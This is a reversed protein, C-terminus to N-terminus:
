PVAVWAVPTLDFLNLTRALPLSVWSGEGLVLDGQSALGTYWVWSGAANEVPGIIQTYGATSGVTAISVCTIIEDQSTMGGGIFSWGASLDRSPISFLTSYCYPISSAATMKVYFGEGPAIAYTSTTALGVFTQTSSDFRYALTYPLHTLDYLEAWTNYQGDLGIPVSWTNWGVTDLIVSNAYAPTSTSYIEAVTDNATASPLYLWPAYTVDDSVTDGRYGAVGPNTTANYPGAATGWYNRAGDLTNATDENLIGYTVNGDISNYNVVVGNAANGSAGWIKIGLNNMQVTNQTVSINTLTQTSRGIRIGERFGKGTGSGKITNGTVTVADQDQVGVGGGADNINIGTWGKGEGVGWDVGPVWDTIITNGSITADSREVTIGRWVEGTFANDAISIIGSGVDTDTNIYIGEYGLTGTGRGTFTNDHISLGDVDITAIGSAGQQDTGMTEDWTQIVQSVDANASANTGQFANDYIEVDPTGIVMGGTSKGSEPDPGQITFGHIKAGSAKIMIDFNEYGAGIDVGKITAGSAGALELDDTGVPILLDETYTGAVVSITDAATASDIADQITNFVTTQTTNIVRPELDYTVGDITITDVYSLATVTDDTGNKDLQLCVSEVEEGAYEGLFWSFDQNGDGFTGHWVEDGGITDTAWADISTIVAVDHQVIGGTSFQISLYPAQYVPVSDSWGDKTAIGGQNVIDSGASDVYYTYSMDALDALTIGAPLFVQVVAHDTTAATLTLEVSYVGADKQTTSWVATGNSNTTFTAKPIADAAVAAAPVATILSFSLVLVLTLLVSIIKRKL